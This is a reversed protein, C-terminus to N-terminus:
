HSSIYLYGGDIETKGVTFPGLFHWEKLDPVVRQGQFNWETHAAVGWCLVVVLLIAELKNKPAKM